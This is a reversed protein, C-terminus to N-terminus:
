HRRREAIHSTRALGMRRASAPLVEVPPNASDLRDLRNLWDLRRPWRRRRRETARLLRANGARRIGVPWVGAALRGPRGLCRPWHRRRRETARLLGAHGVRRIGVLLLGTPPNAAPLWGLVRACHHRRRREDIHPTRALGM